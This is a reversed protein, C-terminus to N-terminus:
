GKSVLGVPCLAELRGSEVTHHSPRREAVSKGRALPATAASGSDFTNQALAVTQEVVLPATKGVAAGRGFPLLHAEGVLRSDQRVIPRWGHKGRRVGGPVIALFHGVRQVSEFRVASIRRTRHWRFNM